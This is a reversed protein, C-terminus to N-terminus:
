APGDGDRTALALQASASRVTDANVMLPASLLDRVHRSLSLSSVEASHYSALGMCSMAGVAVRVSTEAASLRLQNAALARSQQARLSQPGRDADLRRAFQEIRADLDGLGRYLEGLALVRPHTGPASRAEPRRRLSDRTRRLADAAIGYWCSAWLLHSTPLLAESALEGFPRALVQETPVDCEIDAPGSRTGRMGLTDWPGTPRVSVQDRRGCVLVQDSAAADHSRRATLLVVDAHEAYSAAPTRKTLTTRGGPAPTCHTISERITATGRESTVGAVLAGQGGLLEHLRDQDACGAALTEVLSHHMALVLGTSGCEAGIAKVTRTLAAYRGPHEPGLGLHPDLLGHRRLADVAESPFRAKSDVDLATNRAVTRASAIRRSLEDDRDAPAGPGASAEAARESM